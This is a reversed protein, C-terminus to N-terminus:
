IRGVGPVFSFPEDPWGESEVSVLSSAHEPFSKGLDDSDKVVAQRGSQEVVAAKIRDKSKLM